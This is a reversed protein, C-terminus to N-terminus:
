FIFQGKDFQKLKILLDALDYRLESMGPTQKLATEYYNIAKTYNHTKVFAHGIKSALKADRPNKKLASEYVGIAKDPETIQMYADGLLTFNEPTPNSDLLDQFCAIYLKKDKRHKLYIDALKKRAQNYHPKDPTIKKLTTLATEYDGRAIALEANAIAIRIESPTGAFENIADQMVKTAEHNQGMAKHVDILELYISIKDSVDVAIKKEADKSFM